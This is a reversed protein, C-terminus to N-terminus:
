SGKTWKQLNEAIEALREESPDLYLSGGFVFVLLRNAVVEVKSKLEYDYPDIYAKQLKDLHHYVVSAQRLRITEDSEELLNSIEADYEHIIEVIKNRGPGTPEGIDYEFVEILMVNKAQTARSVVEDSYVTNDEFKRLSEVLRAAQLLEAPKQLEFPTPNAVISEVNQELAFLQELVDEENPM